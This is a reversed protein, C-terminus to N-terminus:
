EKGTSVWRIIKKEEFSRPLERIARVQEQTSLAVLEKVLDQEETLNWSVLYFFPGMQVPFFESLRLQAELTHVTKLSM